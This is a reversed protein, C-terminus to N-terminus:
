KLQVSMIEFRLNKYKTDIQFTEKITNNNADTMHPAPSLSFFYEENIYLHWFEASFTDRIESDVGSSITM